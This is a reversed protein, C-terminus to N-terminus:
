LKGNEEEWFKDLENQVFSEEGEVKIIGKGKEILKNGM